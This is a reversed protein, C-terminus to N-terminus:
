IDFVTSKYILFNPIVCIFVVEFHKRALTFPAISM